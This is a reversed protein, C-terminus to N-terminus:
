DLAGDVMGSGSVRGPAGGRAVLICFSQQSPFEAPTVLAPSDDIPETPEAGECLSRQHWRRTLLTLGGHLVLVAFWIALPLWCWWREQSHAYDILILNWCGALFTVVHAMLWEERSFRADTGAGGLPPVEETVLLHASSEDKLVERM